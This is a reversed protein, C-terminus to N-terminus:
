RQMNKITEKRAKISDEVLRQNSDKGGPLYHHIAMSRNGNTEVYIRAHGYGEHSFAEAAGTPSLTPNINVHVSNGDLPGKGSGGNTPMYTVGLNGTEGTTNGSQSIFNVDKFDEEIVVPNFKESCVVGESIYETESLSTVNIRIPSNVLTLLAQFNNSESKCLLLKDADIYGNENLSVYKQEEISLTNKIIEFSKEDPKVARGDPDVFRVPNDMCYVYPSYPYYDEALPDIRDWRGTVPNYQRAGYDYTNLGYMKDLEKGNFKYPQFDPSTEVSVDTYPVGFPYYNTVQQVKGKDDVVERVNGLHDQNYYYFDLHRTVLKIFADWMSPNMPRQLKRGSPIHETCYGGDFLFQKLKGNKLTLRGGLLYDTTDCFQTQEPTLDESPEIGAEYRKVNSKATLHIVRLKQGTASYVYKTIHGPSALAGSM